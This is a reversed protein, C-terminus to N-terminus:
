KDEIEDFYQFSIHSDTIIRSGYDEYVRIVKEYAYVYKEAMTRYNFLHKARQAIYQRDMEFCQDIKHYAEPLDEVLIGTRGQEIIEPMAGKAIAVTPTGCYAAELVTLGFPERFGTPHINAQAGSLLKVKEEMGIEGLYEVDPNKLHPEVMEEFYRRGFFDIKGAVKIKLGRSLALEIALHPNKQRDFRGIFCVYDEKPAFNPTFEEPDLGNYVTQVFRLYPPFGEKQNESINVFFHNTRENYYEILSMDFPGHLTTITPRKLLETMDVGHSHIIDYENSSKLTDITDRMIKRRKIDLKAEEDDDKSYPLSQPCIPHLKVGTPVESDGSAFLTVEHGLEALGKILYYIVRETGGYKKPPVPIFPAAIVAIKM